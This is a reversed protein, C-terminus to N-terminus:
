PQPQAKAADSAGTSAETPQKLTFLYRRSGKRRGEQVTSVHTVEFHESDYLSMVLAETEPSAVVYALRVGNSRMRELIVDTRSGLDLTLVLRRLSPGMLPYYAPYTTPGYGTQLLIGESEPLAVVAPDVGWVRNYFAGRSQPAAALPVAFLGALFAVALVSVLLRKM